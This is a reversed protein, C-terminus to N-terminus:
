MLPTLWTHSFSFPAGYPLLPFPGSLSPHALNISSTAPVLDNLLSREPIGQEGKLRASVMVRETRIVMSEHARKLYLLFWIPQPPAVNTCDEVCPGSLSLHRRGCGFLEHTCQLRVGFFPRHHGLAFNM